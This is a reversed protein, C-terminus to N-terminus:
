RGLIFHSAHGKLLKSMQAWRGEFQIEEEEVPNLGGVCRCEGDGQGVQAILTAYLSGTWIRRKSVSSVSLDSIGQSFQNVCPQYFFSSLASSSGIGIAHVVGSLM